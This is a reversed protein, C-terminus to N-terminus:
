GEEEGGKEGEEEEVGESGSLKGMIMKEKRDEGTGRKRWRMKRRKKYKRKM